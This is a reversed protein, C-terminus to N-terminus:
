RAKPNPFESGAEIVTSSWKQFESDYYVEVSAYPTPHYPHTIIEREVQLRNRYRWNLDGNIFNLEGRDRDSIM